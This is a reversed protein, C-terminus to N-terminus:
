DGRRVMEILQEVAARLRRADRHLAARAAEFDALAGARDGRRARAEGRGVLSFPNRPNVRLSEDYDREAEDNRRMELHVTGRHQWAGAHRPDIEIARTLAELAAAYDRRVHAIDGRVVHADANEPDLRLAEDCDRVAGEDDNLSLRALARVTWATVISPDIEIASGLAAIAADPDKTMIAKGLMTLNNADRPRLPRVAAFDAAAGGTDGARLRLSGRHALAEAFRPRLEIARDLHRIQEDLTNDTCGALWHFEELGACGGWRHIAHRALYLARDHNGQAAALVIRALVGAQDDGLPANELLTAAERAMATSRDRGAARADERRSWDGESFARAV